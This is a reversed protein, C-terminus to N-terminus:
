KCWFRVTAFAGKAWDTREYKYNNTPDNTDGNERSINSVDDKVDSTWVRFTL